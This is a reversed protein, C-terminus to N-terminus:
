EVHDLEEESPEFVARNRPSEAQFKMTVSVPALFRPKTLYRAARGSQVAIDVYIGFGAADVHVAPEGGSALAPLGALEPTARNAAAISL